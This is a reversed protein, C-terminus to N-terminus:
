TESLAERFRGARVYVLTVLLVVLFTVVSVASGRGFRNNSYYTYGLMSLTQTAGGPGGGTLVYVLDFIRLSDITRFILAITLVPRVVPLTVHWFRRGARAGDVAAQEYLDKPIAQLGALLIIVMFPTTKWVEAAVLAWFATAPAGLWNVRDDCLGLSTVISNLVGYSYDFMLKWIKASVITPIAWPVLIVTRLMGRGRFSENLLLAFGLGFIAELTVAVASFACTFWVAHRFEAREALALFNGLGVFRRPQYSIDRFLSNFATALVPLLIFAAVLTLLPLLFLYAHLTNRRRESM